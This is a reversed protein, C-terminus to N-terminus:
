MKSDYVVTINTDSLMHPALQPSWWAPNIINYIYLSNPIIDYCYHSIPGIDVSDVLGMHQLKYGSGEQVQVHVEMYMYVPHCCIDSSGTFSYALTHTPSSMPWLLQCGHFLFFPTYPVHVHLRTGVRERRGCLLAVQLKGTSITPPLKAVLKNSTVVHLNILSLLLALPSM